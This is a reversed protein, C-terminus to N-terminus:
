ATAARADAAAAGERPAVLERHRDVWWSWPVFLWLALAVLGIARPDDPPPASAFGSAFIAVLLAVMTWLGWRGVADRARTARLYLALGVLFTGGDLLITLPVSSWAGLGVKAGGPWLPLDPRHVVLDLFWHSAVLAGVVLAGRRDRRLAFYLAGALVAWGVVAALSHSVPYSTFDMPSAAMLGPVIRVHEVGALLLVPWLEDLWQAALVLAGLSTRPALRRAGLAVGYHGLLM